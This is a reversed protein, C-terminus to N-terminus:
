YIEIAFSQKSPFHKLTIINDKPAPALKYNIKTYPPYFYQMTTSYSVPHKVCNNGFKIKSNLQHWDTTDVQSSYSKM